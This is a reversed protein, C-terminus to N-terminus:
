GPFIASLMNIFLVAETNLYRGQAIKHLVTCAEIHIFEISSLTVQRNSDEYQVSIQLSNVNQRTISTNQDKEKNVCVCVCVCVCM